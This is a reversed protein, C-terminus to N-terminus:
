YGKLGEGLREVGGMGQRFDGCMAIAAAHNLAVVPSPTRRWLEEYLTAIQRWDTESPTAAQAHLAAIAAQLQYPGVRGRELAREVLALGEAIACRDWLARDQEELSVLEGAAIRAERRSDQLLM